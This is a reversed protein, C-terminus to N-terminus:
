LALLRLAGAAEKRDVCISNEEELDRAVHELRRLLDLLVVPPVDLLDLHARGLDLEDEARMVETSTATHGVVALHLDVQVLPLRAMHEVHRLGIVRMVDRAVGVVRWAVRGRELIKGLNDLVVGEIINEPREALFYFPSARQNQIDRM